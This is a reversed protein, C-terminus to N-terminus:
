ETPNSTRDTSKRRQKPTRHTPPDSDLAVTLYTRDRSFRIRLRAGRPWPLSEPLYVTFRRDRGRGNASGVTVVAMTPEDIEVLEAPRWRALAGRRGASRAHPRFDHKAKHRYHRRIILRQEDQPIRDAALSEEIEERLMRLWNARTAM